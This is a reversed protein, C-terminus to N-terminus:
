IDLENTYEKVIELTNFGVDDGDEMGAKINVVVGNSDYKFMRKVEDVYPCEGELLTSESSKTMGLETFTAKTSFHCAEGENFNYKKETNIANGKGDYEIISSRTDYPSSSSRETKILKNNEDYSMKNITKYDGYNHEEYIVQGHDNTELVDKNDLNEEYMVEDYVYVTQETPTLDIDEPSRGYKTDVFTGNADYINLMYNVSEGENDFTQSTLNNGMDDYSYLTNSNQTPNQHYEVIKEILRANEDYTALERVYTGDDYLIYQGRHNLVERAVYLLTGYHADYNFRKISFYDYVNLLINASSEKGNSNRVVLTINHEGKDFAKEVTVGLDILVKNEYWFYNCAELKQANKVVASLTVLTEKTTNTDGKIEVSFEKEITENVEVSTNIEDKSNYYIKLIEEEILYEKALQGETNSDMGDVNEHYLSFIIVTLVMPVILLKRM